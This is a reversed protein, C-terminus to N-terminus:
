VPQAVVPCPGHAFRGIRRVAFGLTRIAGGHVLVYTERAPALPGGGAAFPAFGITM